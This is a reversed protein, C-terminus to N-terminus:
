LLQHWSTSPHRSGEDNVSHISSVNCLYSSDKILSNSSPFHLLQDLNQCLYSQGVWSEQYCSCHWCFGAKTLQWAKDIMNWIALLAQM